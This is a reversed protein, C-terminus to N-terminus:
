HDLHVVMAPPTCVHDGVHDSTCLLQRFHVSVTPTYDNGSTSRLSAKPNGAGENLNVRSRVLLKMSSGDVAGVGPIQVGPKDGSSIEAPRRNTARFERWARPRPFMVDPRGGAARQYYAGGGPAPTVGKPATIRRCLTLAIIQLDNGFPTHFM